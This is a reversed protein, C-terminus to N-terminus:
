SIGESCGLCFIRALIRRSVFSCRPSYTGPGNLFTAGYSNNRPLKLCRYVSACRQSSPLLLEQYAQARSDKAIEPKILGLRYVTARKTCTAIQEKTPAWPLWDIVESGCHKGASIELWAKARRYVCDPGLGLLTNPNLEEFCTEAATEVTFFVDHGSRCGPRDRHGPPDVHARLFLRDSLM